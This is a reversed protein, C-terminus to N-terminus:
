CISSDRSLTWAEHEQRCDSPFVDELLSDIIADGVDSCKAQSDEAYFAMCLCKCGLIADAAPASLCM